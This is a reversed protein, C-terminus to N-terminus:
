FTDIAWEVYERGTLLGDFDYGEPLVGTRERIAESDRQADLGFIEASGSTPRIFDLLMNITTSKGAGNPGLFGFIEGEEIELDLSDVALVDGGFRKTLGNTRISPM